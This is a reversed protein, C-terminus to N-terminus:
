TSIKLNRSSIQIPNGAPDKTDAFEIGEFQHVPGFQLEAKEKAAKVGTVDAVGFVIKV